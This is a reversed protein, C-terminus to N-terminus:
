YVALLLHHGLHDRLSFAIFIFFSFRLVSLMRVVIM